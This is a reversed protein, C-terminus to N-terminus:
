PRYPLPLALCDTIVRNRRALTGHSRDALCEAFWSRQLPGHVMADTVHWAALQQDLQYGVQHDV